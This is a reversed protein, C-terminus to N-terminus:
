KDLPCGHQEDKCSRRPRLISSFAIAMVRPFGVGRTFSAKLVLAKCGSRRSAKRLVLSTQSPRGDNYDETWKKLSQVHSAEARRRRKRERRKVCALWLTFTSRVIVNAGAHCPAVTLECRTMKWKPRPRVCRAECLQAGIRKRTQCKRKSPFHKRVLSASSSRFIHPRRVLELAAANTM